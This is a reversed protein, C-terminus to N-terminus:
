VTLQVPIDLVLEIDQPAVPTANTTALQGFIAATKPEGDVQHEASTAVGGGGANSAVIPTSEDALVQETM